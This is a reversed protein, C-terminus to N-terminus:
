FRIESIYELIESFFIGFENQFDPYNNLIIDVAIGGKQPIGRAMGLIDIAEGVGEPTIYSTLRKHEILKFIFNQFRPPLIEYNDKFMLYCLTAFNELNGWNENRWNVSLFHDYLIDTVVGSYLGFESRFRSKSKLYVPHKDTYSDIARHLLIGRRVGPRYKEYNKGKVGDAIFNGFMEDREPYSLVLHALYNM